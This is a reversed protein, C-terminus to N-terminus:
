QAPSYVALRDATQSIVNGDCLLLNGPAQDPPLATASAIAGKETDIVQLAPRGGLQACSAVPLYYRKGAAVGLGSVPGTQVNWLSAGTALNVAFCHQRGVILVKGNVVGALYLDEEQRDLRWCVAGTWLDLCELTGGDPSTLLVKGSHIIPACQKWKVNLNMAQRGPVPGIRRFKNPNMNPNVPPIEDRYSHAWLLSRSAIDVAVVAGANTPCIMVGEAHALHAAWIRRIGDVLINQKPTALPQMWALRGSAAELCVLRISQEKEALVYLKGGLPLPPGLFHTDSLPQDKKGRGGAEWALRGGELELAVVRNHYVADTLGGADKAFTLDLNAGARNAYAGYDTPFPPITLDEIAYVRQRDCSLTGVVSNELLVHPGSQLFATAWNNAHAANAGTEALAELSGSLASEWLLEGTTRDVAQVGRHTRSVIVGDVTLPIAAPFPTLSRGKHQQLASDIWGRARGPPVTQQQWRTKLEAAVEGSGLGARSENGRFVLCDRAAAAGGPPAVERALEKKLEAISVLRGGFQVGKPSSAWLTKQIAEARELNGARRFALAAKFLTLPAVRAADPGQLLPGFYRAATAYQSRDLHYTGLLDAAQRGAPTHPYRQAVLAMQLVDGRQKAANLLNAAKAGHTLEYLQLAQEPLTALLRRAESRASVWGITDKGDARPRKVAVFADEANELIWQLVHIAKGWDKAGLYDPAVALNTELAENTPLTIIHSFRATLKATDAPPQGTAPWAGATALALATGLLLGVRSTRAM